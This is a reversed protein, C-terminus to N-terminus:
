APPEPRRSPDKPVTVSPLAHFEILGDETLFCSAPVSRRGFVVNVCGREKMFELAVNVQTYPLGEAEAILTLTLGRGGGARDEDIAHATTELVAVTCTHRYRTKATVVTRVLLDGTREYRIDREPKM